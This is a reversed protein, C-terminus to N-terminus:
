GMSLCSQSERNKVLPESLHPIVSDQRRLSVQDEPEPSLARAERVAVEEAETARPAGSFTGKVSDLRWTSPTVARLWVPTSRARRHSRLNRSLLGPASYPAVSLSVFLHDKGGQKKRVMRRNAASTRRRSPIKPRPSHWSILSRWFIM